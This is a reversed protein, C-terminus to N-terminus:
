LLNTPDIDYTWGSPLDKIINLLSARSKSKVVIQWNYKDRERPHFAPVPGEVTIGPIESGLQKALMLANKEASKSTARLCNLKLMFVFPPFNFLKREELENSYFSDWDGTSAAQLTTNEPNYTQLVVSGPRHGRGVRGAVQSILQYTRETASFDPMMLSSDASIIGVLGLQPLDLGKAIIQTGVIIDYDGSKISEIHMELRDEKKLDTDFRQVKAGPFLRQAEESVAKTGMSKLLIDGNGCEPCSGPLASNFGCTHCRLIHEDGHYTIPLDCRPCLKQWGCSNCLVVNATGRRNLFLLIQSKQKLNSTIKDVLLTSFIRSRSLADKDRMNVIKVDTKVNSLTVAVHQMRIIPRQKESALYYDDITPTASGNVYIANHYSALVSAVRGASYHPASENKYAQDHSEDVIVLGLTQLPAFLASRPGIVVLPDKSSLIRYWTDRRTATTQASHIVEVSKGFEARFTTTLQATLGIEPTLVLVSQGELIARKALELYVRSKGSGTVGHLLYSGPDQMVKLANTQEVTLPPLLREAPEVDEQVFKTNKPFVTSPPLFQRVIAGLPAPYYARMWHLLRLTENPLRISDSVRSIVKVNFKPKSSARIVIALVQRDRLPVRVITGVSLNESSAYTLADTGHFQQDGILVEYYKM